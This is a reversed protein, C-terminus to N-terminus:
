AFRSLIAAALSFGTTASTKPNSAAPRGEIRLTVDTAASQFAIEHVNCGATEPDAVLRVRTRELGLGALAVTAAVNANKPFDRAAERASGEFFVTPRTVSPLDILSEAPTGAWAAPPKRSVYTVSVLGSLRAAALIDLGGIAGPLLTLRSGGSRAAETMHAHLDGDVLAGVSSIMLDVGASLAAPGIEAVAGHGAAEVIFDPRAALLAETDTVVLREQALRAGVQDALAEARARGDPRASIVLRDLPRSLNDAVAELALGAITGYGVIGLTSM